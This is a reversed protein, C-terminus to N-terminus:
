EPPSIDGGLSRWPQCRPDVLYLDGSWAGIVSVLFPILQDPFM